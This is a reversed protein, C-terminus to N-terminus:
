KEKLILKLERRRRLANLRSHLRKLYTGRKRGKREQQLLGAVEEESLHRLKKNLVTWSNLLDSM